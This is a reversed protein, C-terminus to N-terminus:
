VVDHTAGALNVGGSQASDSDPRSEDERSEAPDGDTLSPVAAAVATTTSEPAAAAAAAGGGGSGRAVRSKRPGSVGGLTDPAIASQKAKKSNNPESGSRAPSPSCTAAADGGGGNDNNNSHQRHKHRGHGRRRRAHPRNNAAADDDDGGGAVLGFTAAAPSAHRASNGAAPPGAAASSGTAGEPAEEDRDSKGYDDYEDSMPEGNDSHEYRGDGGSGDGSGYGDDYDGSSSHSADEEDDETETEGDSHFHHRGVGSSTPSSRLSASMAARTMAEDFSLNLLQAAALVDEQRPTGEGAGSGGYIIRRAEDRTMGNRQARGGPMVAMEIWGHPEPAVRAGARGAASPSENQDPPPRPPRVDMKCNPCTGQRHLWQDLCEKHFHHRCSLKRIKDQDEFQVLCISCETGFPLEMGEKYTALEINENDGIENDSMGQSQMQRRQEMMMRRRRILSITLACCLILSFSTVAIVVGMLAHTVTTNSPDTFDVPGYAPSPAPYTDSVVCTAAVPDWEWLPCESCEAADFTACNRFLVYTDVAPDRSTFMESSDSCANNYWYSCYHYTLDDYADFSGVEFGTCGNEDLCGRACDEADQSTQFLSYDAYMWDEEDYASWACARNSYRKFQGLLADGPIVYDDGAETTTTTCDSDPTGFCVGNCDVDADAELGTSGGSCVGCSDYSASGLCTGHCDILYSSCCMSGQSTAFGDSRVGFGYCIGFCDKDKPACCVGYTDRTAAGGCVGLCDTRAYPGFGGGCEGWAVDWDSLYCM